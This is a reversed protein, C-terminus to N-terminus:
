NSNKDDTVVRIHKIRALSQVERTSGLHIISSTSVTQVELNKIKIDNSHYHEGCAERVRIKPLLKAQFIPYDDIPFDEEKAPQGYKQVALIDSIPAIKKSDGIQIISSFVTSLIYIQRIRTARQEM